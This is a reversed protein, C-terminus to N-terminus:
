GKCVCNKSHADRIAELSGNFGNWLAEHRERFAALRLAAEIAAVAERLDNRVANAVGDEDLGAEDLAELAQYGNEAAKIKDITDQPFNVSQLLDALLAKFDGPKEGLPKLSALAAGGWGPHGGPLDRAAMAAAEAKDRALQGADDALKALRQIREGLPSLKKEYYATFRDVGTCIAPNPEQSLYTKLDSAVKGLMWGFEGSERLSTDYGASTLRDAERYISVEQRQGQPVSQRRGSRGPASPRFVWRRPIAKDPRSADRWLDHLNAGGNDGIRRLAQLYRGACDAAQWSLTVTKDESAEKSANTVPGNAPDPARLTLTLRSAQKGEAAKLKVEILLKRSQGQRIGEVRARRVDGDRENEVGAGTIQIIDGNEVRLLVEAADGKKGSSRSSLTLQAFASAGESYVAGLSTATLEGHVSGAALTLPLDPQDVHLAAVQPTAGTVPDARSAASGGMIMIGAICVKAFAISQRKM